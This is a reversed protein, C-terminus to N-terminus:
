HPQRPVRAEARVSAVIAVALVVCILALSVAIPLKYFHAVLMKTGVFVLVVALAPRLYRFRAIAGELLFYLARLGLIAFVNSSYVIFPDQTVAFVAPISDVAFLVDTTEVMLLALFLPTAFFRRGRRVFLSQGEYERLIPFRRSAWRLLPSREPHIERRKGSLLGAGTVILFAGFVYLIWSFRSLLAVGAAIFAGRMGLAGVVGWFLVRHRHQPPVAASTFVVSFVFINDTSLSKELLYATLFELAADRGRWFYVGGCFVLSLIVWIASWFAAERFSVVHARRHFVGLDLALLGLIFLTFVGYLHLGTMFPPLRSGSVLLM